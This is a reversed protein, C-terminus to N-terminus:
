VNVSEYSAKLLEINKEVLSAKMDKKIANELAKLSVEKSIALFAGLLATNVIPKKLIKLALSTADLGIVNKCTSVYKSIDKTNILLIGNPKLSKIVDNSFLTEDLVIAFDAATIESRDLIKNEDLKTFGLVLAGRREPGFTPFALAYKNEFNAAVGLLRAATFAGGGGRGHWIIECM